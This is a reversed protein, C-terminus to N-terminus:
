RRRRAGRGKPRKGSKETRDLKKGRYTIRGREFPPSTTITVEDGPLINIRYRRMRGGLYCLITRKSADDPGVEVRYNNSGLVDVVIGTTEIVDNV